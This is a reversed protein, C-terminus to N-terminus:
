LGAGFQDDDVLSFCGEISMDMQSKLFADPVHKGLRYFPQLFQHSLCKLGSAEIWQKGLRHMFRSTVNSAGAHCTEERRSLCQSGARLARFGLGKGAKDKHRRGKHRSGVALQRSNSRDEATQMKVQDNSM